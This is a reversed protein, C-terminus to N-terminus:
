RLLLPLYSYNPGVEYAGIDCHAGQPRTIGRQDTAACTANNGTDIASSGPLLPITQTYGGYNGLVGLVPDTEIIDVCSSGAPCGGQIVSDNVSPTSNYNLIQDGSSLATNGWFISNTIQSNSDLANYLGGGEDASNNSFTVNSLILNSNNQNFIGGGNWRANNGSFTVNTLLPISHENYMGGGLANATNGSFTVNTLEPDSEYNDMGGGGSTALNNNFATDTIVPNSKNNRIGGGGIASNNSFFVSVLAPNSNYNYMGGGFDATNYIFTINTIAPSSNTNYIGGGLEKAFNESFTVDLMVPNSGTTNYMGGGDYEGLNNSFIVNTIIPSSSDNCMGGGFNALNGRFIVNTVVPSSTKNYMGGGYETGYEDTYGATITFGDLTADNAGTVVHYSNTTNGTVTTIDTIVPTKSDNNDIDGSLITPNTVPDRTTGTGAFGGYLAVGVKLQFTATRDKTLTTPKHVGAAVWIEDGSLAGILATQLTCANDWSSCNGSGNATPMAYRIVAAHVNTTPIFIGSVLVVSILFRFVKSKM